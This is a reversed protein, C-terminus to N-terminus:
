HIIQRAREALEVSSQLHAGNSSSEESQQSQAMQSASNPESRRAPSQSTQIHRPRCRASASRFTQTPSSIASSQAAERADLDYPHDRTPANLGGEPGVETHHVHEGHFPEHGGHGHPQLHVEHAHYLAHDRENPANEETAEREIGLIKTRLQDEETRFQSRMRDLNMQKEQYDQELRDSQQEKINERTKQSVRWLQREREVLLRAM